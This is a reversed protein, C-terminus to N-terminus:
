QNWCGQRQSGPWWASTWGRTTTNSLKPHARQGRSLGSWSQWPSPLPNCSVQCWCTDMNAVLTDPVGQEWIIRKHRSVNLDFRRYWWRYLMPAPLSHHCWVFLFLCQKFLLFRETSPNSLVILGVLWLDGTFLWPSTPHQRFWCRKFALHVLTKSICCYYDQPNFQATIFTAPVYCFRVRTKAM